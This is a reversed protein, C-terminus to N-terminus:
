KGHERVADGDQLEYNGEVVVRNGSQLAGSIGVWDPTEITTHVPVRHAVGGRVIFVYRGQDDALVASRPVALSRRTQVTIRGRLVMGPLLSAAQKGDLRVIADVLRTRPDVTGHVREIRASISQSTEFIPHLEVPADHHVRTAETAEVGLSVIVSDRKSLTLLPGGAQVQDGPSVNVATVIGAFPAKIQKRTQDNGLDRQAKLTSRADALAKRATAVDARTALQQKLLEKKSRLQQRAFEVQTLAKRYEMRANPATRLVLMTDGAEVRQGATVARREVIVPHSANIATASDPDPRVKGYTTLTEHLTRQQVPALRVQVSSSAPEAALACASILLLFLAVYKM